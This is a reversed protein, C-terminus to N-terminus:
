DLNYFNNLQNEDIVFFCADSKIDEIMRLGM